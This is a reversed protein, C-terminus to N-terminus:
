PEDATIYERRSYEVIKLFEFLASLDRFHSFICEKIEDQVPSLMNISGSYLFLAEVCAGKLAIDHRIM